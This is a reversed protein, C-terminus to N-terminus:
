SFPMPFHFPSMLQLKDVDDATMHVKCQAMSCRGFHRLFTSQPDKGDISKTCYLCVYKRVQGREDYGWQTERRKCSPDFVRGYVKECVERGIVCNGQVGATVLLPHIHYMGITVTKMHSAMRATASGYHTHLGHDLGTKLRSEVSAGGMM